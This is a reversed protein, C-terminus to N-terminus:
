TQLHVKLSLTLLAKLSLTYKLYNLTYILKQQLSDASTVAVYTLLIQDSKDIIICQYTRLAVNVFGTVTGKFPFNQFRFYPFAQVLKPQFAM